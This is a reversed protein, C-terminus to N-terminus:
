AVLAAYEPEERLPDLDRDKRSWEVLHPNLRLAEALLALAEERRGGGAHLCALNYIPFAEAKPPLTSSRLRERMWENLEIARELEGEDRFHESLTTIQQGSCSGLLQRWLPPEHIERWPEEALLQDDDMACVREALEHAVARAQHELEQWPRSPIDTELIEDHSRVDCSEVVEGRELAKLTALQVRRTHIGLRVVREVEPGPALERELTENMLTVVGAGITHM